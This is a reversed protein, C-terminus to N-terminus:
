NKKPVLDLTDGLFLYVTDGIKGPSSCGGSVGPIVDDLEFARFISIQHRRRLLVGMFSRLDSPRQRSYSTIGDVHILCFHVTSPFFPVSSVLLSRDGAENNDFFSLLASLLSM